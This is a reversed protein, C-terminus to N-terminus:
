VDAVLLGSWGARNHLFDRPEGVESDANEEQADNRTNAHCLALSSLGSTNM